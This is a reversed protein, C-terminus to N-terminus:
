RKPVSGLKHLMKHFFRASWRTARMIDKDKKLPESAFNISWKDQRVAALVVERDNKLEETAYALDLGNKQVVALAGEKEHMAEGDVMWSEGDFIRM